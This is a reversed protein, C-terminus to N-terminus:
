VSCRHWFALYKRMFDKSGLGTAVFGVITRVAGSVVGDATCVYRRLMMRVGM